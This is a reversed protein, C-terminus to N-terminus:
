LINNLKAQGYAAITKVDSIKGERISDEFDEITMEIVEIIEDEEEQGEAPELGCAYFCHIIEDSFGPTTYIKGIAKWYNASMKIEEKMERQACALPAEESNDLTGAPFELLYEQVAERYQKVLILNGASNQPIFVAAGPHRVIYRSIQLGTPQLFQCEDVSFLPNRHVQQSDLLKYDGM